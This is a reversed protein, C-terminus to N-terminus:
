NLFADTRCLRRWRPWHDTSALTEPRQAADARAM